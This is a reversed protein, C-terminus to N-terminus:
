AIGAAYIAGLVAQKRAGTIGSLDLPLHSLTKDALWAFMMAEMFDPDIGLAKTSEISLHPLQKKLEALLAMNHAGGGCIAVQKVRIPNNKIDDAITMATLALLTAQVDQAADNQQLHEALWDMSFYEKGLSKPPVRKFYPDDMLSQLLPLIM